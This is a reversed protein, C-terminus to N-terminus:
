QEKFSGVRRGESRGGEETWSRRKVSWGRGRSEGVRSEEICVHWGRSSRGGSVAAISSASSSTREGNRKTTGGMNKQETPRISSRSLDEVEVRRQVIVSATGRRRLSM